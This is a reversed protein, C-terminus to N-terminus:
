NKMGIYKATYLNTTTKIQGCLLTGTFHLDVFINYIIIAKIRSYLIM